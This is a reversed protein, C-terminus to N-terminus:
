CDISKILAYSPGWNHAINEFKVRVFSQFLDIIIDKQDFHERKTLQSQYHVKVKKNDKPLYAYLTWIGMHRM